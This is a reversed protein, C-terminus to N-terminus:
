KKGKRKNKPVVKNVTNKIASLFQAAAGYHSNQIHEEFENKNNGFDKKCIPCNFGM